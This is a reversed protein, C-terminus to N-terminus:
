KSQYLCEQDIEDHATLSKSGVARQRYPNQKMPNKTQTLELVLWEMCCKSEIKFSCGRQRREQEEGCPNLPTLFSRTAALASHQELPNRHRAIGPSLAEAPPQSMVEGAAPLHPGDRNVCALRSSTCTFAPSWVRPSIQFQPRLSSRHLLISAVCYDQGAIPYSLGFIYYLQTSSISEWVTEPFWPLSAPASNLQQRQSWHPVQHRVAREEEWGHNQRM